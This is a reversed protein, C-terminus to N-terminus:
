RRKGRRALEARLLDKLKDALSDVLEDTWAALAVEQIHVETWPTLRFRLWAEGEPLPSPARLNLMERRFDSRQEARRVLFRLPKSFRDAYDAEVQRPVMQQGGRPAIHASVPPAAGFMASVLRSPLVAQMDEIGHARMFDAVQGIKWGEVAILHRATVLQLLQEFRFVVERGRREGSGVAGEQVYMRVLRENLQHVREYAEREESPASSPDHTQMLLGRATEVLEEYGGEWKSWDRPKEMVTDIGLTTAM